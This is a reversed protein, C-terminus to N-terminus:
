GIMRSATITLGVGAGSVAGGLLRRWLSWEPSLLQYGMGVGILTCGLMVGTIVPHARLGRWIGGSSM